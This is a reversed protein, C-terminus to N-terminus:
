SGMLEEIHKKLSIKYGLYLVIAGCVWAAPTAYCIGLFGFYYGFLLACGGRAFLEAFSSMLPVNVQGMGQLVNRFTMLIGFFFFFLVIIHLYQTALAMVESDIETMFWGVM